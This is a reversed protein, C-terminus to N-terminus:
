ASLVRTAGRPAHCLVERCLSSDLTLDAPRTEADTGMPRGSLRGPDLGDEAALLRAFDLRSLRDAGAAHLPGAHDADILDSLVRAVDDVHPPPM